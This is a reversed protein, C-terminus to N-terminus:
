LYLKKLQSIPGFYQNIKIAGNKKENPSSLSFQSKLIEKEGQKNDHMRRNPQKNNFKINWFELM